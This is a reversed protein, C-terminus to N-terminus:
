IEKMTVLMTGNWNKGDETMHSHRFEFNDVVVSYTAEGEQWIVLEKNSRLEKIADRDGTVDRADVSGNMLTLNEALLLPCDIMWVSSAAPLSRLTVSRIVPAVNAVATLVLRLETRAARREGVEFPLDSTTHSGIPEFADGDSSVWVSHQGLSDHKVDVFLAVKNDPLRYTIQGSDWTGSAVPTSLEAFVGVGSVSFVRKELFTVISKIAGQGTAMLDSAYAPTLGQTEVSLDLRGLGTSVGDYNTLAYWIFRDQPEFAGVASGTPILAGFVLNGNSDAQAVRVGFDSGVVVFGLYSQISRIIEGDPLQGAVTPIDLGTGDPKTATKYIISKDGSYGAAYLVSQGESFDVWTFDTNPHTYLAAPAAGGATINYIVNNNAAMLRGNVYRILTCVLANFPVGTTAAAGRTTSYVGGSNALYITYGDSAMSQITSAHTGTITTWATLDQTRKLTQNDGVYLYSGAVVMPLNTNVSSLKNETGNLLTLQWKTWPDIGKSTNYRAINSDGRDVFSQGAGAHWTDFSRRWLDDPNISAESPSAASDGQQRITPVSYHRFAKTDLDVRFPVGNLAVEYKGVISTPSSLATYFPWGMSLSIM